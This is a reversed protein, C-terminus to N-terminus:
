PHTPIYKNQIPVVPTSLGYEFTSDGVIIPLPMELCKGIFHFALIIINICIELLINNRSSYFVRLM